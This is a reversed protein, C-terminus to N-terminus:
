LHRLSALDVHSEWAGGGPHCHFVRIPRGTKNTNADCVFNIEGSMYLRLYDSATYGHNPLTAEIWKQGPQILVEALRVIEGTTLRGIHTIPSKCSLVNTEM